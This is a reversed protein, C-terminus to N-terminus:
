IKYRQVTEKNKVSLRLTDLQYNYKQRANFHMRLVESHIGKFTKKYRQFDETNGKSKKMNSLYSDGALHAHMYLDKAYEFERCAEMAKRIGLAEAKAAREMAKGYDLKRPVSLGFM